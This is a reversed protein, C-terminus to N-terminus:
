APGVCCGNASGCSLARKKRLRFLTGLSCWAADESIGAFSRRVICIKGTKLNVLRQYNLIFEGNALEKSLDLELARREQMRAEMEQEFFRYTNGGDAKCRYLATDANRMLHDIETGDARAIAIGVSTGVMIQHGELQYPAGVEEILRTALLTTDAPGNIKDTSGCVRRRRISGCHGDGM